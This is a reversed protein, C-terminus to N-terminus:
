VFVSAYDLLMDEIFLKASLPHDAIARRENMAKLVALLQVSDARLALADIERRYKPYYRIKGSFKVSFLDYLWRQLWATVDAPASKQLLDAIKLASEAAPKALHALLADIAERSGGQAEALAALPAGGQEALWSEADAVGQSKLWALADAAEPLALPVKRCRSLITPLLRDINNSVLIFVTDPPPEELTKLLANSAVTNLAEAPHLLLVRRGRRHTSINMFDALARIQEIKIEKSATKGAKAAKAPEAEGDEAVATEDLNEPRVRRYDPHAYQAFWGCALCAGCAQGDALPQECLLSQALAVGFRTKGIGEPGHLLVAHPFRDRMQMLQAWPKAQWPLLQEQM